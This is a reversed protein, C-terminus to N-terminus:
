CERNDEEIAIIENMEEDGNEKANKYIFYLTLQLIGFIFGLMNPILISLDSRVIGYFFWVAASITLFLSLLFPMYEVSRTRIVKGVICLPAVYALLSFFICIWGVVYTRQDGEMLLQTLLIILIFAIINPLVVMTLTHMKTDRTAYFLYLCIYTIQILCGASNITILVISNPKLVAYYIWCLASFLSIIYPISQFGETSKRQYIQCFTPVPAFYVMLSIVNGLIGFAYASQNM